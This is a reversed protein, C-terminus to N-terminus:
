PEKRSWWGTTDSVPREADITERSPEIAYSATAYEVIQEPANWSDVAVAAQGLNIYKGAGVAQLTDIINTLQEFTFPTAAVVQDVGEISDPDVGANLQAIITDANVTGDYVM